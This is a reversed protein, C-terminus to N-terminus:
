RRRRWATFLGLALSLLPLVIVIWLHTRGVKGADQLDLRRPEVNKVSVSVRWEREAAWNFANLFLDRDNEFVANVFSQAAGFVFVRASPRQDSGSSLPAGASTQTPFNLAAAVVFPRRSEDPTQLWDGVKSGAPPLDLWSGEAARLIPLVTAGPYGRGVDLAHAAHIAVRRGSRVLLETIPHQAAMGTRDIVQFACANTGTQVQGTVDPQGRCVIGIPAIELGWPSLLTALSDQLQLPDPAPACVMRGGREVYRRIAALEAPAFPQQPGICVLIRCDDPVQPSKQADWSDVVFGDAVLTERLRSLGVMEASEPDYEGHGRTFLVHPADSRAVKMLANVLAEEGRFSVMRPPRAAGSLGTPDGKDFDAIDGGLELLAHRTGASVAILGGPDVERAGVENLRSQTPEDMRGGALVHQVLRVRGGAADRIVYLLRRVREQAEIVLDELPYEAGRLFVDITVEDPLQKLVELAQPDLSNEEARTWDLRLRAFSRESLRTLLLALLGFLLAAAVFMLRFRLRTWTGAQEPLREGLAM